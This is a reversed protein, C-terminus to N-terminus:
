STVNLQQEKWNKFRDRQCSITEPLTILICDDSVLTPYQESVSLLFENPLCIYVFAGEVKSEGRRVVLDPYLLTAYYASYDFVLLGDQLLYLNIKDADTVEKKLIKEIQNM